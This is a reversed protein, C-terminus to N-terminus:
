SVGGGREVDPQGVLFHPPELCGVRGPHRGAELLALIEFVMTDDMIRIAM